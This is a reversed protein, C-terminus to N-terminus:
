IGVSGVSEAIVSAIWATAALRVIIRIIRGGPVTQPPQQVCQLAVMLVTKVRLLAEVVMRVFHVSLM